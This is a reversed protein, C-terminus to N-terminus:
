KLGEYNPEVVRKTEEPSLETTTNSIAYPSSKMIIPNTRRATLYPTLQEEALDGNSNPQMNELDEYIRDDTIGVTQDPTPPTVHDTVHDPNPIHLDELLNDLMAYPNEPVPPEMDAATSYEVTESMSKQKQLRFEPNISAYIVSVTDESDKARRESGSRGKEIPKGPSEHVESMPRGVPGVTQSRELVPRKSKSKEAQIVEPVCDYSPRREECSAGEYSPRRLNPLADYSDRRVMEPLAEYSPRRAGSTSPFSITTEKEVTAYDPTDSGRPLSTYDQSMGMQLNEITDYDVMRSVAPPTPAHCSLRQEDLIDYDHDNDEVEQAPPLQPLERDAMSKAGDSGQSAAGPSDLDDINGNTEALNTITIRVSGRSSVSGQRSVGAEGNMNVAVNDLVHNDNEVVNPSGGEKVDPLNAIPKEKERCGVCVLVLSILVTVGFVAVVWM